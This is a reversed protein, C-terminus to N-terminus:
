VRVEIDQVSLKVNDGEEDDSSSHGAGHDREADMNLESYKESTMSLICDRLIKERVSVGPMIQTWRTLSQDWLKKFEPEDRVHRLEKFQMILNRFALAIIYVMRLADPSSRLLKAANASQTFAICFNLACSFLSIRRVMIKSETRDGFQVNVNFEIRVLMEKRTEQLKSALATNKEDDGPSKATSPLPYTQEIESINGLASHKMFEVHAHTEDCSIFGLQQFFMRKAQDRGTRFFAHIKQYISKLVARSIQDKLEADPALKRKKLRGAAKEVTVDIGDLERRVEDYIEPRIYGDKMWAAQVLVNSSSPQSPGSRITDVDSNEIDMTCSGTERAMSRHSITPSRAACNVVLVKAILSKLDSHLRGTETSKATRKENPLSSFLLVLLSRHPGETDFQLDIERTQKFLFQPISSCIAAAVYENSFVSNVPILEQAIKDDLLAGDKTPSQSSSLVITRCYSLVEALSNNFSNQMDQMATIESRLLKVVALIEQMKEHVGDGEYLGEGDGDGENLAVDRDQVSRRESSREM